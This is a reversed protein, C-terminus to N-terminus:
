QIMYSTTSEVEVPKDLILFPRFEFKMVDEEVPKRLEEPGDTAQARVVRGEKNVTFKVAVKGHIGRPFHPFGRHVLYKKMLIASPVTVVGTLPGPSGAPPVFLLSDLQSLAEIRALSIKLFPKGSHTVEVEHAVYRQDFQFVNNYVTEDWGQGRTYRLITTGPEYCFKPLGNDSLVRNDRLVVCDLKTKGVTWALKNPSGDGAITAGNLPSLVEEVAQLTSQSPWSQDGARYLDTGDAVETQAFEDTKIVKRFKKPNVYFEEIAGSHVNDGDEDFEDYAIEVHWPAASQVDVGNAFTLDRLIKAAEPSLPVSGSPRLSFRVMEKSEQPDVHIPGLQGVQGYALASSIAVGLGICLLRVRSSFRM